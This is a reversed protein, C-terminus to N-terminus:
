KERRATGAPAATAQKELAQEVNPGFRLSRWLMFINEQHHYNLRVERRANIQPNTGIFHALLDLEGDRSVNVDARLRSIEMYRLWNIAAGTALNRSGIADAFQKDLRLAMTGDGAVWGRRVYGAPDNFHLPLEGSVRGSVAFQKPKLATILESMEISKVSLVAADRQPLSLPTLHIRGGLADVDVGTLTLPRRKDYPYYGQLGIALNKLVVPTIISDIRLSVPQKVGLQWRNDQLRYSLGLAVGLLHNEGSWAEGQSVTAHGGALFGQGIAASFASQANFQGDRLTIRLDPALLTQFVRLPQKPWWAQGRLRNGDWRGNLRVPGIAGAQLQGRWLFDQPTAGSLNLTLDPQPLYGGHAIDIRRANIRLAGSFAPNHENRRWRLPATLTLRPVAVEALGYSIHNLGSSLETLEITDALWSGRGKIDWRAGFPTLNGGGWYRWRWEGTDPLFDLARGDMHLTFRGYGPADAQLIAQLRGSLGRSSVRVGALPLRASNISLVQSIPGTVRLLAGPLMALTPDALTERMQGPISASISLGGLNATGTFRFDLANNMLRLPGPGVTLVANAKGRLGQTLMNMRATLGLADPGDLWHALTIAINGSLPQTAYPWRWEGETILLDDGAIRWPLRALRIDTRGDTLLLIGQRQRWSIAASLPTGDPLVLGATLEGQEPPMMVQPSLTMGGTLGIRLAGSFLAPQAPVIAAPAQAGTAAGADRGSHGRDEGPMAGAATHPPATTLAAPAPNQLGFPANFVPLAPLTSAAPADAGTFTLENISLQRDRLSLSLRLHENHYYARTGGALHELELGGAYAQWPAVVLRGIDLTFRPLAQEITAWTLPEGREEERARAAGCASDVGIQGALIRWAGGQRRVSIDQGTIWACSPRQLVFGPLFVAGQHWGPRGGLSISVDAPLIMRAAVPLWLPVFYWGAVLPLVILAPLFLAVLGSRRLFRGKRRNAGSKDTM